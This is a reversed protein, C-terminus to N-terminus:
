VFLPLLVDVGRQEIGVAGQTGDVSGIRLARKRCVSGLTPDGGRSSQDLVPVAAVAYGARGDGSVCSEVVQARGAEHRVHMVQWSTLFEERKTVYQELVRCPWNHRRAKQLAITPLANVMDIDRYLGRTLASRLRSPLRQLTPAGQAYVRGITYLGDKARRYRVRGSVSDGRRGARPDPLMREKYQLVMVREPMTLGAPNSVHTLFLLADRSCRETMVIDGPQGDNSLDRGFM